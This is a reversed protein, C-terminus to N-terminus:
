KEGEKRNRTLYSDLSEGEYQVGGRCMMASKKINMALLHAALNPSDKMVASTTYWTKGIKVGKEEDIKSIVGKHWFWPSVKGQFFVTEGVEFNQM